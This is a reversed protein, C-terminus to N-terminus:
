ARVASAIAKILGESFEAAPANAAYMVGFHFDAANGSVNNGAPKVARSRDVWVSTAASTPSRWASVGVSRVASRAVTQM